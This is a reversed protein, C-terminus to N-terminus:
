MNNWRPKSPNIRRYFKALNRGGGELDRQVVTLYRCNLIEIDGNPPAATSVAIDGPASLHGSADVSWTGEPFSVKFQEHVIGRDNGCFDSEEPAPTTSLYDSVGVYTGDNLFMYIERNWNFYTQFVLDRKNNTACNPTYDSTGNTCCGQIIQGDLGWVKLPSNFFDDANPGLTYSYEWEWVDGGTTILGCTGTPESKPSSVDLPRTVEGLQQGNEDYPAIKIEFPAGAPPVGGTTLGEIDIGVLVVSVTDNNALDPVEPVDFYFTGATGGAYVQILAGAVNKTTDEHLFKVPVKFEDALFLTDAFSIKLSSGSPGGPMSGNLKTASLFLLRNSITDANASNGTPTDGPTSGNKKCACIVASLILLTFITM